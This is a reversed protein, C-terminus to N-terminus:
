EAAEQGLLAIPIEEEVEELILDLDIEDWQMPYWIRRPSKRNRIIIFALQGSPLHRGFGFGMFPMGPVDREVLWIWGYDGFDEFDDRVPKPLLPLMEVRYQQLIKALRGKAREYLARDAEHFQERRLSLPRVRRPPAGRAGKVGPFEREQRTLFVGRAPTLFVGRTDGRSPLFMLSTAEPAIPDMGQARLWSLLVKRNDLVFGAFRRRGVFWRGPAPIAAHLRGALRTLLPDSEILDV